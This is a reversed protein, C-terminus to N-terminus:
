AAAVFRRGVSQGDAVQFILNIGQQATVPLVIQPLQRGVQRAPIDLRLHQFRQERMRSALSRRAGRQHSDGGRHLTAFRSFSISLLM